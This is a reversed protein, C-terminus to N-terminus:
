GTLRLPETIPLFLPCRNSAEPPINKYSCSELAGLWTISWIM